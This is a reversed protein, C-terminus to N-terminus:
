ITRLYDQCCPARKPLSCMPIRTSNNPQSYTATFEIPRGDTATPAEFTIKNVVEDWTTVQHKIGQWWTAADHTLLMSLGKIANHDTVNACEKYSEIADIFGEVSETPTGSFVAKCRAFNGHETLVPAPTSTSARHGLVSDLIEKIANTQTRQLGELLM